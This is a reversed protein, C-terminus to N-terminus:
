THNQKCCCALRRSILLQSLVECGHFFIAKGFGPLVKGCSQIGGFPFADDADAFSASFSKVDSGGGGFGRRKVDLADVQPQASSGDDVGHALTALAGLVFKLEMIVSNVLAMM